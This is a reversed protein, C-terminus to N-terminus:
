FQMYFANIDYTAWMSAPVRSDRHLTLNGAMENGLFGITLEGLSAGAPLWVNLAGYFDEEFVILVHFANPADEIPALGGVAAGPGVQFSSTNLSVVHESFFVAVLVETKSTVHGYTAAM